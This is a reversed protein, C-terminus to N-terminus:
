LFKIDRCDFTRLIWVAKANTKSVARQLQSNYKMDCDILIGPEKICAKPEIEQLRGPKYIKCEKENEFNGIKLLQFKLSNRQM